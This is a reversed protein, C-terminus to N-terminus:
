WCPRSILAAVAVRGTRGSMSSIELNFVIGPELVRDPLGDRPQLWHSGCWDPPVAIGLSYGGVWWVYKRLEVEDIYRQSILEVQSM